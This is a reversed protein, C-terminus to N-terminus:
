GRDVVKFVVKDDDWSREFVKGRGWLSVRFDFIENSWSMEVFGESEIYNVRGIKFM